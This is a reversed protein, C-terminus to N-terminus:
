GILTIKQWNDGLDKLLRKLAPSACRVTSDEWRQKVSRHLATEVKRVQSRRMVRYFGKYENHKSARYDPRLDEYLHPELVLGTAEAETAIWAGAHDGLSHDAYGGGIDTHVGSFWVQKLDISPKHSWLAPSFDERNEDIAVAHRAHRIISSPETDHFLYRATGLTGLFPAPIGLSGVTDFVGIFEIGSIDAWANRARFDRAKDESPSSAKGRQRYLEYAADIRGAFKRRLIGCNRILGGLSRVTYAGRSFGFLYLQDGPEYNHVIFRYCDMINKDIGKGTVSGTFHDGESGVGWDYFVVQKNGQADAPAVAQAIRLIHTPNDSEPSQWTGDACVVIRKM